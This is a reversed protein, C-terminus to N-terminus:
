PCHQTEARVQVIQYLLSAFVPLPLPPASPKGLRLASLDHPALSFKEALKMM